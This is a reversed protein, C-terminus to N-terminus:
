YYVLYVLTYMLGTAAQGPVQYKTGNHVVLYDTTCVPCVTSLHSGLLIGYLMNDNRVHENETLDLQHQIHQQQQQM